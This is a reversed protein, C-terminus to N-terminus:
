SLGSLRLTILMRIALLLPTSVVWYVGFVPGNVFAFLICAAYTTAPVWFAFITIGCIFTLAGATEIRGLHDSLVGIFPRGLAIGLSLFATVAAAQDDSLGISHGFESLSFLVVIHALMSIFAFCLHLFVDYRRLLKTDFIDHSPLVQDNRSQILFTAVLNMVCSVLGTIRLSWGLGLSEIIWRSGFSFILGGVGMGAASIGYVMSRRKSFWQALVGMTPIYTCGVGFGVLIGQTLFIQWIQRAFSAAVLGGTQLIIGIIMAIHINHYRILSMVVPAVVMAASFGLSGIIAYDFSSGDSFINNNIYYALYIGYSQTVM